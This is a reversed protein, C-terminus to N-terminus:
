GKRCKANFSFNNICIYEIEATHKRVTGNYCYFLKVFIVFHNSLFFCTHFITVKSTFLYFLQCSKRVIEKVVITIEANEFTGNNIKKKLVISPLMGQGQILDQILFKM